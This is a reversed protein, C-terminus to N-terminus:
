KGFLGKVADIANNTADSVADQAKGIDQEAKGKAQKGLADAKDGTRQAADEVRGIDYKARGEVQKAVGKAKAAVSDKVSEAKGAAQEITGEAQRGIGTVAIHAPQTVAIPAAFAPAAASFSLSSVCALTTLSLQISRFAKKLISFLKM